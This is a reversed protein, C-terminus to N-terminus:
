ICALTQEYDRWECLKWLRDQRDAERWWDHNYAGSFVMGAIGGDTIGVQEMITGIAEDLDDVGLAAQLMTDTIREAPNVTNEM